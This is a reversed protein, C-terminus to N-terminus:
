EEYYAGFIIGMENTSLLGFSVSKSTTNNYTIVSTLGEGPNLVIPPDFFKNEPHHWDTNEYVLEGNRSGGAILIQFKEGLQHTHSTLSFITIKKQTTFTKTLTTRQGPPLDINQNAWNLSKALKLNPSFPVTHFNVFVEGYIIESGKNVYHPNFDFKMGAPIRMAVGEPLRFDQYPTQSGNIFLHYGIAGANEIIYSGDPRRLDRIGDSKPLLAAPTGEKFDYIVLHHSNERMKIEIRNVYVDTSNGVPKYVFFEREFDPAIQFPELRVQYGSSPPQLTEFYEPQETKDELLAAEGTIGKRPAGAEIWQRIYELQGASIKDLGLPMPNGYDMGDHHSAARQLKHFLFSNESDGPKVLMMKDSLAMDNFPARGVLQAYSKGATLILKHQNFFPDSESAHCSAIACSPTLIKAQIQDFSSEQLDSEQCAGLWLLSPVVVILFSSVTKPV